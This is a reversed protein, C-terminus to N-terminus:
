RKEDHESFCCAGRNSFCCGATDSFCCGATDSFCCGERDSFCCGGRDSFCCGGRTSACCGGTSSMCCGPMDEYKDWDGNRERLEWRMPDSPKYGTIDVHGDSSIGQQEARTQQQELEDEYARERSQRSAHAADADADAHAAPDNSWSMPTVSAQQQQGSGEVLGEGSRPLPGGARSAAASSAAEGYSPPPDYPHLEIDDVDVPVTQQYMGREPMDLVKATAPRDLDDPRGGM